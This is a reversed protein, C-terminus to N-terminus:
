NTQPPKEDMAREMDVVRGNECDAMGRFFSEPIPKIDIQIATSKGGWNELKIRSDFIAGTASSVSVPNDQIINIM